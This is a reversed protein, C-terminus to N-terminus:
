WFYTTGNNMAQCVWSDMFTNLNDIGAVAGDTTSTCGYTDSTADGCDNGGQSPWGIESIIQTPYTTGGVQATKQTTLPVDNGTWFTYAWGAADDAVEGAFFPHVNAMVIDSAQALSADWNDGLDATSVPLNIGKSTFNSRVGELITSLQTATLYKSYLVENGVIVGVFSSHDYTDLINYMDALQRSDTTDNGNLYVGLWVKMTDQMQLRNIAELVLETQNCDTGYLRIAPTLQSMIAVDITVNNQVPGGGKALCQPYQAYNPTYDMAPFVKHLKDNGLVAQVEDSNIDYLGGKHTGKNSGGGSSSSGGGSNRSALIGGVVGGVIGGVVLLAIAIGVIWKLRKNGSSQKSLWDSKEADAGVPGYNGGQPNGAGFAKSLGAGAGAGAAAGGASPLALGSFRSRPQEYFGDDGDDAISNPDFSDYGDGHYWSGRPM